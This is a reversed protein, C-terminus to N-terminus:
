RIISGLAQSLFLGKKLAIVGAPVILQSACHSILGIGIWRPIPPSGRLDGDQECAPKNAGKELVGFRVVSDKRGVVEKRKESPVTERGRGTEYNHGKSHFGIWTQAIFHHPAVVGCSTVPMTVPTEGLRQVSHDGVARLWIQWAKDLEPIDRESVRRSESLTRPRPWGLASRSKFRALISLIDQSRGSRWAVWHNTGSTTCIRLIHTCSPLWTFVDSSSIVGRPSPVVSRDSAHVARRPNEILSGLM